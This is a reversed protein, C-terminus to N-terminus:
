DEIVMHKRKQKIYISDTDFVKSPLFYLVTTWFSDSLYGTEKTWVEKNHDIRQKDDSKISM